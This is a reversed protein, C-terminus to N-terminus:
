NENIKMLKWYYFLTHIIFILLFSLKLKCGQHVSQVSNVEKIGPFCLSDMGVPLPPHQCLPQHDRPVGGRGHNPLGQEGDCSRHETEGLLFFDHQCLCAAEYFM